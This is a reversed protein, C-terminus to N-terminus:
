VFCTKVLVDFPMAMINDIVAYLLDLINTHTWVLSVMHLFNNPLFHWLSVM